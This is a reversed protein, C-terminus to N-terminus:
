PKPEPKRYRGSITEQDRKQYYKMGLSKLVAAVRNKEKQTRKPVDIGLRTLVDNMTVDWNQSIVFAAINPTWVDADFRALQEVEAIDNIGSDTIHWPVGDKYYQFAEAWIQNRDRLLADIDADFEGCSVPWVRRNGTHDKLYDDTNSTGSFVCQRPFDRSIRGYPPRFNDSRRTLFAKVTAIDSKRIADLESMEVIWKGQL